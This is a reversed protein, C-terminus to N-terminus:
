GRRQYPFCRERDLILSFHKGLAEIAADHAPYPDANNAAVIIIRFNDVDKGGPPLMATALPTGEADRLTLFLPMERQVHANLGIDREIYSTTMPQYSAKARELEAQFYKEVAHNMANSEIAAEGATEIRFWTKGEPADCVFKM